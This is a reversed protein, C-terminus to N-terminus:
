VWRRACAVCACGTPGRQKAGEILQGFSRPTVELRQLKAKALGADTARRMDVRNAALVDDAVHALSEAVDLLLANKQKTSLVAVARSAAAARQAVERVQQVSAASNM